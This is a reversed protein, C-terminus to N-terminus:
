KRVGGLAKETMMREPACIQVAIDIFYNTLILRSIKLNALGRKMLLGTLRSITSISCISRQEVTVRAVGHGNCFANSFTRTGM